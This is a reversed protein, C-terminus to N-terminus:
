RDIGQAIRLERARALISDEFQANTKKDIPADIWAGSPHLRQRFVSTRLGDARLEASLIYINLKFRETPSEPPQFWDTIIVGGFPDTSALPMFSITDLSARWLYSNVAIGSNGSSSESDDGGLLKLGGKGFLGEKEEKQVPKGEPLIGCASTLISLCALCALTPIFTFLSKSSCSRTFNLFRCRVHFIRAILEESLPMYSLSAEKYGFEDAPGLKEAFVASAM